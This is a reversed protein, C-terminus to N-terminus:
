ITDETFPNDTYVLEVVLSMILVDPIDVGSPGETRVERFFVNKAIVPTYVPPEGEPTDRKTFLAKRVKGYLVRIDMDATTNIEMIVECARRAPYGHPTRSNYEVISDVGEDMFLAPFKDSGVAKTPNRRFYKIGIGEYAVKLRQYIEELGLEREIM